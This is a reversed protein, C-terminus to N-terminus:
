FSFAEPSLSRLVLSSLLGPASETYDFSHQLLLPNMYPRM